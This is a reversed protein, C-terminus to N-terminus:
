VGFCSPLDAHLGMATMKAARQIADGETQELGRFGPMHELELGMSDLAESLQGGLADHQGLRLMDRLHLDVHVQGTDSPCKVHRDALVRVRQMDFPNLGIRRHCLAKQFLSAPNDEGLVWWRPDAFIRSPKFTTKAIVVSGTMLTASGSHGTTGTQMGSCDNATPVAGAVVPHQSWGLLPGGAASM